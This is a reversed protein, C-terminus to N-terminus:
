LAAMIRQITEEIALDTTDIEIADDAKALPAIARAADRTDRTSVDSLAEAQTIDTNKERLQAFRRHARTREDATIYFKRWADPFVVTAMDRGEAVISGSLAANRQIDLLYDRVPRRASFISSFHGAEPTRIEVSVDEGDLYVAANKFEISTGRLVSSIVDDGAGENLGARVLKLAVARYLAGTDLYDFGLREALARAVTSKGSGAPGDIAIVRMGNKGTM